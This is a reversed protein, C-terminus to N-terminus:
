RSISWSVIASSRPCIRSASTSGASDVSTDAAHLVVREIGLERASVRTGGHEEYAYLHETFEIGAARLARAFYLINEALRGEAM